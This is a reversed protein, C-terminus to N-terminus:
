NRIIKIGYKKEAEDVTMVDNAVTWEFDMLEDLTIGTLDQLYVTDNYRDDDNDILGTNKSYLANCELCKYVRDDTQAMIWMEATKM